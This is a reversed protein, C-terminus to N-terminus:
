AALDRLEREGLEDLVAPDVRRPDLLHVVLRLGLDLLVYALGSLLGHELRVASGHVLLEDLHEPTQAVPRAVTLVDELVRELDGVERPDHGRLEPDAHLRGLAGREQVVDALRHRVLDLARM